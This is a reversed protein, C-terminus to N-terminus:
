RRRLFDVLTKGEDKNDFDTDATRRRKYGAYYALNHLLWERRLSPVTRRWSPQVPYQANYAVMIGAIERRHRWSIVRYSRMLKMNPEADRRYDLILVDRKGLRPTLDAAAEEPVIYVRGFGKAYAAFPAPAEPAPSPLPHTHMLSM